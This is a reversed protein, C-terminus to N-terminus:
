PSRTPQLLVNRQCAAGPHSPSIRKSPPQQCPPLQRPPPPSWIGPYFNPTPLPAFTVVPPLVKTGTPLVVFKLSKSLNDITSVARQLLDVNIQIEKAPDTDMIYAFFYVHSVTDIDAVRAKVTAELESQSGKLLDLGSVINLKDSKPWQAVEQTFPRNTLATVKSFASPNPYGNLITNVIAWGTIGSAGFILAHHGTPEGASGM